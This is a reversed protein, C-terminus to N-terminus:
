VLDDMGPHETGSPDAGPCAAMPVFPPEPFKTKALIKGLNEKMKKIKDVRKEEPIMDVKNLVVVLNNLLTEAIVLCEATQTQVGKNIDVVLIMM